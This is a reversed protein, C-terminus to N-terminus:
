RNYDQKFRSVAAAIAGAVKDQFAEDRLMAEEQPNTIFATEV